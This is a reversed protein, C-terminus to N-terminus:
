VCLRATLDINVLIGIDFRRMGLLVIKCYDDKIVTVDVLLGVNVM